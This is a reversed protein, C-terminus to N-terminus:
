ENTVKYPKLQEFFFDDNPVDFDFGKVKLNNDTRFHVTGFSFWAQPHDWHIEWVDYHWHTLRASLLPSHSFELTLDGNKERIHTCYSGDLSVLPPKSPKSPHYYAFIQFNM